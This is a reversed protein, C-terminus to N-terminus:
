THMRSDHDGQETAAYDYLVGASSMVSAAPFLHTRVLMGTMSVMHVLFMKNKSCVDNHLMCCM